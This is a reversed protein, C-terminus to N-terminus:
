AGSGCLSGLLAVAGEAPGARGDFAGRAVRGEGASAGALVDLQPLGQRAMWDIRRATVASQRMVPVSSVRHTSALRVSESLWARM